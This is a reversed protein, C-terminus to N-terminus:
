TGLENKILEGEIMVAKPNLDADLVVLDADKGPAISGKRKDVGLNKAPTLTAMTVAEELTYGWRIVNRLGDMLTIMSGYLREDAEGLNLRIAENKIYQQTDTDTVTRLHNLRYADLDPEYVADAMWEEKAIGALATCDTILGVGEIGKWMILTKGWIPEVHKEDVILEAHIGPHAYIAEVAGVDRQHLGSMANYTHTGRTVGADIAAMAQDYTANTHGIAVVINNYAEASYTALHRTFKLDEDNEPAISIVKLTGDSAAWMAHFDEFNPPRIYKPDQAGRKEYSGFIGEVYSGLVCSGGEVPNDVLYGIAGLSRHIQEISASPVTLVLSTVGHAAHARAAKELDGADSILTDAGGGGHLHADILGPIVKCGTADITVASPHESPDFPDTRISEIKGDRIFIEGTPQYAPTYIQGGIITLLTDKPRM